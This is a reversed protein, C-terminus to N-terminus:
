LILLLFIIGTNFTYLKSLERTPPNYFQYSVVIYYLLDKLTMAKSDTRGSHTNRTNTNIDAFLSLFTDVNNFPSCM